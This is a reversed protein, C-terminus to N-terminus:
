SHHLYRLCVGEEQPRVTDLHSRYVTSGHNEQRSQTQFEFTIKMRLYYILHPLAPHNIFESNYLRISGVAHGLVKADVGM